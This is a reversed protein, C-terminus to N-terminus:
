RRLLKGWDPMPMRGSIALPSGVKPVGYLELKRVLEDVGAAEEYTFRMVSVDYSTILGERRRQDLLAEEPSRGATMSLDLLKRVGDCEGVIVRGDARVWVFDVRFTRGPHLPDPVSVQLEPLMYGQEIMVARAISEGGSESRDDAHALTRLAAPVGRCTGERSHFYGELAERRGTRGRVAMDAVVMGERFDMWRLSDLTTRALPTVLVGSRMVPEEDVGGYSSLRIGHYHVRETRAPWSTGPAMVHLPRQLAYSVDAGFALSASPGCFVWSPHLQQLGRMLSLSRQTPDLREWEDRLAYLGREPSVVEGDDGLRRRLAVCLRHSPAPVCAGEGGADEFLARVEQDVRASM